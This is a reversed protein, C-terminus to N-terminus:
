LVRWGYKKKLYIRKDHLYADTQDIEKKVNNKNFKIYDNCSDWCATHRKPPVCDRCPHRM